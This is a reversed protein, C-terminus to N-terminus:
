KKDDRYEGIYRRGDSWSFEGKGHMKNNKWDGKFIRGDAWQYIGVSFIGRHLNIVKAMYIIIMFSEMSFVKIRGNFTEKGMSEEM